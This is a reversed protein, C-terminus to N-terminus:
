EADFVAKVKLLDGMRHPFQHIIGARVESPADRVVDERVVSHLGTVHSTEPVADTDLEQLAEIYGFVASLQEAYVALEEEKLSLRALVAIHAIDQPTLMM